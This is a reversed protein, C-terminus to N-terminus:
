VNSGTSCLNPRVPLLRSPTIGTGAMEAYCIVPITPASAAVADDQFFRLSHPIQRPMVL